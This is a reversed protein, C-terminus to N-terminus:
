KQEKKRRGKEITDLLVRWKVCCDKLKVFTEEYRDGM